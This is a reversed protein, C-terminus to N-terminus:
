YIEKELKEKIKQNKEYDRIKEELSEPYVTDPALAQKQLGKSLIIIEKEKLKDDACVIDRGIHESIISITSETPSGLENAKRQIDYSIWDQPLDKIKSYNKDVGLRTDVQTTM